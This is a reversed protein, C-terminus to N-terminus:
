AAQVLALRRSPARAPLRALETGDHRLLVLSGDADEALATLSEVWDGDNGYVLGDM